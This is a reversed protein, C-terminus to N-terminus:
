HKLINENKKESDVDANKMGLLVEIILELSPYSEVLREFLLFLPRFDFTVWNKSLIPNSPTFKFHEYM